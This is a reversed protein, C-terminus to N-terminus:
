KKEKKENKKLDKDAGDAIRIKGFDEEEFM